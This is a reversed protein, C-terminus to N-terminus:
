EYLDALHKINLEDLMSQTLGPNNDLLWQNYTEKTQNAYMDSFSPYILKPRHSELKALRAKNSM